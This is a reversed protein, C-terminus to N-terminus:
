SVALEAEKSEAIIGEALKGRVPEYHDFEVSFSGTGSTLAKLEICYTLLESEPVLSEVELIVGSLQKQGLVRGRRSNLDSLVDGLYHEEIIVSVNMIPELLVPGAQKVAEYLAGRAALRFALESSDVSHEKGDLLRIAIDMMPYKALPGAEMADHLGKEVGPIYGKSVSGGRIANVFQYQEGRALPKIEIVVEGFQGHGGSQKKHRYNAQSGKTITERYAIKPTGTSIPIKHEQEIEELMFRLHMEGMGSVVSEHTESNYEIALTKDEESFRHLLQNLKDNNKRNDSQVRLSYVPKPLKLPRFHIAPQTETYTDNTHALGLKAIVGLDGAEIETTDSIAQGHATYIRHIREKKEERENLLESDSKLTGSLVKIFSLKGAFQDYRTKFVFFSLPGNKDISVSVADGKETYATEEHLDPHPCASEFFELLPVIGIHLQAAGAFVPIINNQQFGEMLGKWVDKLDLDEDELFKETLEDDGEAAAEILEAKFEDRLAKKTAEDLLENHLVENGKEDHVFYEDNILNYVGHLKEEKYVPVSVAVFRADFQANLETLIRQYNTGSEDLKNIFVMRPRSRADLRRWQKITEIQIGASGNIVLIASDSTRFAAVVEGVFDAVGPTDLLNIKIDRWKRTFLTTFLSMQHVKELHTFDSLFDKKSENQVHLLAEVLTTKGVGSHGAISINRIHSSM